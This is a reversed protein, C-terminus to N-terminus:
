QKHSHLLSKPEYLARHINWGAKLRAKLVYYDIGFREALEGVPRKEGFFEVLWTNRRNRVQEKRSAWRCNSPNYGEDNRQRELTMDPPRSGMDALFAAFTMWGPHVTLGRGGYNQYGPDSPDCCRNMMERWSDYTRRDRAPM